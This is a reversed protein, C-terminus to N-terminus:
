VLTEYHLREKESMKEIKEICAEVGNHYSWILPNCKAICHLLQQIAKKHIIWHQYATGVFDLGKKYQAMIEDMPIQGWILAIAYFEAVNCFACWDEFEQNLHFTQGNHMYDVVANGLYSIPWLFPYDDYIGTIDYACANQLEDFTAGEPLDVWVIHGRDQAWCMQGGFATKLMNAFYYCYGACFLHDIHEGTNGDRDPFNAIEDIFRIVSLNIKGHIKEPNAIYWDLLSGM